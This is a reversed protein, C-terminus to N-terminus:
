QLMSLFYVLDKFKKPSTQSLSAFSPMPATPNELTSAIAGPRLIKGIKTLPPGPGNNGNDGIVHCGLCGSEGVVIKGANFEARAQGTISSPTALDVEDPSGTNAGEYTLFAICAITLIGAALALPRKTILREPSRDYIPLLFLGIM